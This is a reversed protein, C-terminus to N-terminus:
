KLGAAERLDKSLVPNVYAGLTTAITASTFDYSFSGGAESIRFGAQVAKTPVIEIGGKALSALSGKLSAGIKAADAESLSIQYAKSSDMGSLANKILAELDSGMAGQVGKALASDFMKRISGDLSLLLERGAIQMAASGREKAKEEEKKVDAMMSEAKATADALIQKAVAEADAVIKAAETKASAVGEKKIKSILEQLQVEM